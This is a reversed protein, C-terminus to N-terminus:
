LTAGANRWIQHIRHLAEAATPRESPELSVCAKGLAVMEPDASPSFEVSLRGLSVMQLIAPEPLRRNGGNREGAHSYPMRHTDLESLVVGFSFIDAKENYNESLMVEPAMWLSSGVGATMTMDAIERSVGFDTLKADFEANLLINKSKLDRHLVIPRLSHLYTLAHAIHMAIKIKDHDFGQVRRETTEFRTLMSRLDGGEMFETVVCAEALSDWAVGVFRVIHEHEMTAMLKAEGLFSDIQRMDKRREPLLRKIAVVEDKYMGRYVEGYAGRAIRTELVIKEMPLRMALIEPDEILASATPKAHPAAARMSATDSLKAAVRLSSSDAMNNYESTSDDVITGNNSSHTRGTRPSLTKAVSANTKRRKYVVFGIVAVAVVCAAIAIPVVYPSSKNVETDAANVKANVGSSANVSTNSPRAIATSNTTSNTVGPGPTMPRSTPKPTDELEDEDRVPPATTPKPKKTPPQTTTEEGNIANNADKLGSAIKNATSNIFADIDENSIKLNLNTLDDLTYSTM